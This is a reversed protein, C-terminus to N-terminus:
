TPGGSGVILESKPVKGRGKSLYFGGHLKEAGGLCQVNTEKSSVNTIYVRKRQTKEIDGGEEKM